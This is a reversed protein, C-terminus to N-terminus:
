RINDPPDGGGGGSVNVILLVNVNPTARTIGRSDTVVCRWVSSYIRFDGPPISNNFQTSSGTPNLAYASTDGSLRQWQYTFPARGGTVTVVVPPDIQPPSPYPWRMWWITASVSVSYTQIGASKTSAIAPQSSNSASTGAAQVPLGVGGTLLLVFVAIGLRRFNIKVM